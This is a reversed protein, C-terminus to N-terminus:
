AIQTIRHVFIVRQGNRIVDDCARAESCAKLYYFETLPWTFTIRWLLEEFLWESKSACSVDNDTSLKRRALELVWQAPILLRDVLRDKRRKAIKRKEKKKIIRKIGKGRPMRWRSAHSSVLIQVNTTTTYIYQISAFPDRLATALPGDKAATCSATSIKDAKVNSGIPTLRWFM